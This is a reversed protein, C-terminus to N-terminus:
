LSYKNLTDQWNIFDQSNTLNYTHALNYISKIEQLNANYLETMLIELKNSNEEKM